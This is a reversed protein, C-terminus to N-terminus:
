GSYPGFHCQRFRARTVLVVNSDGDYSYETQTLVQDGNVNTAASYNSSTGVAPDGGGDSAYQKIIRGAGDYVFKGVLGGPQVQKIVQSRNDYWLFTGLTNTTALNGANTGYQVVDSADSRYPRGWEDYSTTTKARLKSGSPRDPVQDTLTVAVGDGDYRETSTVEDLNDYAYYDIPRHTTSDESSQVGYKIAGLRDRWDYFLDTVRDGSSDGPTAHQTERSVNWDGTKDQPPPV